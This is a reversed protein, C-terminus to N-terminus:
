CRPAEPQMAVITYERAVRAAVRAHWSPADGDGAADRPVSTVHVRGHSSAYLVHLETARRRLRCLRRQEEAMPRTWTSRLARKLSTCESALAALDARLRARDIFSTQMYNKHIHM